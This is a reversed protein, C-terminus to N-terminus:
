PTAVYGYFAILRNSYSDLSRLALASAGDTARMLQFYRWENPGNGELFVVSQLAGADFLTIFAVRIASTNEIALVLRGATRDRVTVRYTTRGTDDVEFYNFSHGSVFDPAQLDPKAPQPSNALLGAELM